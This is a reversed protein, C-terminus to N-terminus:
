AAHTLLPVVFYILCFAAAADPAFGLDRLLAGQFGASNVRLGKRSALACDVEAALKMSPGDARGHRRAMELKPGVREDGRLVPRGIGPVREGEGLTEAVAQDVTQGGRVMAGIRDLFRMFGAVPMVTMQETCLTALGAIVSETLSGGNGAIRKTVTLPWIRPDALQTLVGEHDLLEADSDSLEVGAIALAAVQIFSKKGLLEKFVLRGRLEHDGVDLRMRAVPPDEVLEPELEALTAHPRATEKDLRVIEDRLRGLRELAEDISHAGMSALAVTLLMTPSSGCGAALQVNELVKDDTLM